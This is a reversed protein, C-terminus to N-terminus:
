AAALEMRTTRATARFARLTRRSVLHRKINFLDHIATHAPLFRQHWMESSQKDRPASAGGKM